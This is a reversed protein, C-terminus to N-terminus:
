HSIRSSNVNIIRYLRSLRGNLDSLGDYDHAQVFEFSKHFYDMTGVYVPENWDDFQDSTIDIILGDEIDEAKYRTVDFPKEPEIVGYEKVVAYLGEPWEFSRTTPAHTRHDKLVLWAHSWDDRETSVWITEFGNEKLYEALLYCTDGCCGRPFHHFIIDSSFMGENKAIEIAARFKVALERIQNDTM